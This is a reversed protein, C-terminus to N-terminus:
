RKGCTPGSAMMQTEVKHSCHLPPLAHKAELTRCDFHKAVGFMYVADVLHARTTHSNPRNM